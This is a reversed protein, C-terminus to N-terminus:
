VVTYFWALLLYTNITFILDSDENDENNLHVIIISLCIHWLFIYFTVHTSRQQAAPLQQCVSTPALFTQSGHGYNKAWVCYKSVQKRDSRVQLRYM